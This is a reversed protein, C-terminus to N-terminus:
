RANSHFPVVGTKCKVFNESRFYSQIIELATDYAKLSWVIGLNIFWDPINMPQNLGVPSSM